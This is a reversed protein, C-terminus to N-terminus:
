DDTAIWFFLLRFLGNLRKWMFIGLFHWDFFICFQENSPPVYCLIPYLSVSFISPPDNYRRLDFRIRGHECYQALRKHRKRRRRKSQHSSYWRSPQTLFRKWMRRNCLSLFWWCKSSSFSTRCRSFFFRFLLPYVVYRSHKQAVSSTRPLELWNGLNRARSASFLSYILM